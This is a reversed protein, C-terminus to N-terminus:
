CKFTPAFSKRLLSDISPASVQMDSLLVIYDCECVCVCVCARVCACVCVCVCARVCIYICKNIYVRTIFLYIYNLVYIYNHIFIYVCM